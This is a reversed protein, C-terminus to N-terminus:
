LSPKQAKEMLHKGIVQWKGGQDQLEGGCRVLTKAIAVNDMDAIMKLVAAEIDYNPDRGIIKGMYYMTGILATQEAMADDIHHTQKNLDPLLVVSVLCAVDQDMANSDAYCPMALAAIAMAIWRQKM